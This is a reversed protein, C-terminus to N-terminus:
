AAKTPPNELQRFFAVFAEAANRLSEQWDIAASHNAGDDTIYKVSAFPIGELQCVKALAYAEMDFVDCEVPLAGSVFSDGSACVGHDLWHFYKEFELAAPAHDDFPTHGHPFGFATADMDRQEFRHCAVLSGRPYSRSGATGLNLIMEPRKGGAETKALAKALRYAANVKGVGTYVVPIALEELRGQSEFDLAM